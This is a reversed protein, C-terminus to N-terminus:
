VRKNWHTLVLALKQEDNLSSTVYQWPGTAGCTFCLAAAPTGERDNTGTQLEIEDGGCWPCPLPSPFNRVILESRKAIESFLASLKNCWVQYWLILDDVHQRPALQLQQQIDDLQEQTSCKDILEKFRQFEEEAIAYIVNTM